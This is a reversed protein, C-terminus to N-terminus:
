CRGRAPQHAMLGPIAGRTPPSEGAASTLSPFRNEFVVVDYTSAPIETLNGSSTPCLPCADGPPLHTREQRHSAVIVWEATLPDFRLDSAAQAPKLARRDPATRAPRGTEDFYILARGDALRTTTKRVAEGPDQAAATGALPRGGAPRHDRNDLTV